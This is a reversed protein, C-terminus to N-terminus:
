PCNRNPNIKPQRFVFNNKVNEKNYINNFWEIIKSETIFPNDNIPHQHQKVRKLIKKVKIWKKSEDGMLYYMNGIAEDLKIDKDTTFDGIFFGINFIDSTVTKLKYSLKKNFSPSIFIHETEVNWSLCTEVPQIYEIGNNDKAEKKVLFTRHAKILYNNKDKSIHLYGILMYADVTGTDSSPETVFPRSDKDLLSSRYYYYGEIEPRETADLKNKLQEKINKSDAEDQKCKNLQTDCTGKYLLECLNNSTYKIAVFPAAFIGLSIIPLALLTSIKGKSLDEKNSPSIQKTGRIITYVFLVLGIPITINIWCQFLIENSIFQKVPSILDFM